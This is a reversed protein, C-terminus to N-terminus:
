FKQKRQSKQRNKCKVLNDEKIIIKTNGTNDNGVYQEEQEPSIPLFRDKLTLNCTMDRSDLRPVVKHNDVKVNKVHNM